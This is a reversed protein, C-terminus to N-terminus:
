KMKLFLELKENFDKKNEATRVNIPLDNYLKAGMYYFGKRGYETKIRPLTALCKNNRTTKIHEHTTIHSQLADCIDNNLINHVLVCARKINSKEPSLVSCEKSNTVIIRIAREHLAALKRSQGTTLKLNLIGCYTVVPVIMSRYLKCATTSDLFCRLKSLLRLRGSARKYCLEFNTNLNLTSDIEVGLYRYSTTANIKTGKYQICIEESQRKLRQATGFVLVETKGKKANLILENEDMWKELKRMENTLIKSM